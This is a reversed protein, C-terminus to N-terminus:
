AAARLQAEKADAVMAAYVAKALHRKLCRRAESPTKGEAKKKDLYARGQPDWRAQVMAIIFLARNLQRNGGRNL